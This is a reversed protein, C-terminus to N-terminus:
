ENSPLPVSVATGRDPGLTVCYVRWWPNATARAFARRLDDQDALMSRVVALIGRPATALHQDGKKSIVQAVWRDMEADLLRIGGPAHDIVMDAIDSPHRNTAAAVFWDAEFRVGTMGARTDSMPDRLTEVVASGLRTGETEIRRRGLTLVGAPSYTLSLFVVGLTDGALEHVRRRIHGEIHHVHRQARIEDATPGHRVVEVATEIGGVSALFDVRRGPARTEEEPRRINGVNMGEWHLERLVAFGARDETVRDGLRKLDVV